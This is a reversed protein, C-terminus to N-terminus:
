IGARLREKVLEILEAAAQRKNTLSLSEKVWADQLARNEISLVVPKLSGNWDEWNQLESFRARIWAALKAPVLTGSIRGALTGVSRSPFEKQIKKLVKYLQGGNIFCTQVMVPLGAAARQPWDLSEVQELVAREEKLLPLPKQPQKIAPASDAKEASIQM